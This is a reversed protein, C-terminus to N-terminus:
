KIEQLQVTTQLLDPGEQPTQAPCVLTGIDDQIKHQLGSTCEEKIGLNTIGNKM